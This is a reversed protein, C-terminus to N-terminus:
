GKNTDEFMDIRFNDASDVIKVGDKEFSVTPSGCCGCGDISMKINHEKLISEVLKQQKSKQDEM